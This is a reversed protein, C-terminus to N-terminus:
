KNELILGLGASIQQLHHEINVLAALIGTLAFASATSAEQMLTDTSVVSIFPSKLESETQRAKAEMKLKARTLIEGAMHRAEQKTIPM